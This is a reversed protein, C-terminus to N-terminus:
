LSLFFRTHGCIFCFEQIDTNKNHEKERLFSFKDIIIGSFIQIMVILLIINGLNDFM